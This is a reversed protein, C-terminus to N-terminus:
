SELRLPTCLRRADEPFLLCKTLPLNFDFRNSGTMVSAIQAISLPAKQTLAFLPDFVM